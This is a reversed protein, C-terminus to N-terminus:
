FKKMWRRGRARSGMIRRVAPDSAPIHRGVQWVGVVDRPDREVVLFEQQIGIALDEGRSSRPFRLQCSSFVPEAFIGWATTLQSFPFPHSLPRFSM